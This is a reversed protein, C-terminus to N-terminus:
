VQFKDTAKLGVELREKVREQVMAPILDARRNLYEFNSSDLLYFKMPPREGRQIEMRKKDPFKNLEQRHVVFTVWHNVV